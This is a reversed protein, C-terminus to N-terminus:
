ATISGKKVLFLSFTVSAVSCKLYIASKTWATGTSAQQYVSGAKDQSLVIYGLPISGITHALTDETNPTANSVYTQFQGSINQGNEGDVGTGFSIRGQALTYLKNLQTQLIRIQEKSDQNENLVLSNGLRM